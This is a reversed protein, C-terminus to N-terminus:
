STFLEASGEAVAQECSLQDEIEEVFAELRRDQLVAAALARQQDQSLHQMEEIISEVSPLTNVRSMDLLICGRLLKLRPNVRIAIRILGPKEDTNM